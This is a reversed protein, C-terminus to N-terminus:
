FGGLRFRRMVFYMATGMIAGGVHAANGIQTGAPPAGAAWRAEKAM